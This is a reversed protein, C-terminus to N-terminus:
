LDDNLTKDAEKTSKKALESAKMIDQLNTEQKKSEKTQVDTEKNIRKVTGLIKKLEENTNAEEPLMDADKALKISSSSTSEDLIIDEREKSKMKEIEQDAARNRGTWRAFAAKAKGFPDFADEECKLTAGLEKAKEANEYTAIAEEKAHELKENQMRIEDTTLKQKMEAEELMKRAKKTKEFNEREIEKAEKLLEDDLAAAQSDKEKTKELNYLDKM